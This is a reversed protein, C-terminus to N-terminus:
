ADRGGRGRGAELQRSIRGLRSAGEEVEGWIALLKRDQGVSEEITGRLQALVEGVMRMAAAEPGVGTQNRAFVCLDTLKRGVEALNSVLKDAGKTGATGATELNRGVRAMDDRWRRGAADRQKVEVIMRNLAVAVPEFDTGRVTEMDIESAMSLSLAAVMESVPDAIRHESFNMGVAEGDHSVRLRTVLSVTKWVLLGGVVSVVLCAVVGVAQVGLWHLRNANAPQSLFQGAVAADTAFLPVALIGLVGCAGHVPIAGVADDIRSRELLVTCGHVVLGSLIGIVPVAAVPVIDASATIAVLGGLTGNLILGIDTVGRISWSSLMATVGGFCAALLTNAVIRGTAEGFPASGGNFGIWGFILIFTGLTSLVLDSAPISRVEGAEGFRGHRAGLILVGALSVGAGMM